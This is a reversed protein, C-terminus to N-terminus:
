ETHGAAAVGGRDAGHDAHDPHDPHDPASAAVLEATIDALDAALEYRAAADQLRCAITAWTARGAPAAALDAIRQAQDAVASALSSAIQWQHGPLDAVQAQALLPTLRAFEHEALALHVRQQDTLNLLHSV